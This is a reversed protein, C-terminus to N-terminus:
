STSARSLGEGFKKLEEFMHNFDCVFRQTQCLDEYHKRESVFLQFM